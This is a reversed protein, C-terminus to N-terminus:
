PVWGVGDGVWGQGFSDKCSLVCVEKKNGFKDVVKGLTVEGLSGGTM